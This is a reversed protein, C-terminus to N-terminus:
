KRLRVQFIKLMFKPISLMRRWRTPQRLLRYLWELKFKIWIDPARKVEGALVDISGGVGIFIGKSFSSLHEAIWKEQKPVGLAVLVIDPQLEQIEEQLKDENWDFFGHHRGVLKIGPYDREIAQAAKLNVDESGGLLYVKWGRISSLELLRVMLDYGAIRELIPKKLFDAAWLVGNGDPVVYDANLVYSKYAYDRETEMVIEPNATVIFTRREEAIRGSILSVMDDFSVNMFPIDLITVRQNTMPLGRKSHFRVCYHLM